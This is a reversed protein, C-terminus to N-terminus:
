FDDVIEWFSPISGIFSIEAIVALIRGFSSMFVWWHLPNLDLAVFAGIIYFLLNLLIMPLFLRWITSCITNFIIKINKM